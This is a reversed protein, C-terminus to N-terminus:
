VFKGEGNTLIFQYFCEQGPQWRHQVGWLRHDRIGPVVCPRPQRAVIRRRISFDEHRGGEYTNSQSSNEEFVRETGREDSQRNRITATM